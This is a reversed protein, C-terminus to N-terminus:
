MYIIIFRTGLYIEHEPLYQEEAPSPDVDMPSGFSHVYTDQLYNLALTEVLEETKTKLVHVLPLESQFYTNFENFLNLAYALFELYIKTSLKKLETLIM